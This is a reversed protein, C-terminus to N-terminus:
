LGAQNGFPIGFQRFSMNMLILLCLLNNESLHDTSDTINHNEHTQTNTHRHGVGGGLKYFPTFRIKKKIM